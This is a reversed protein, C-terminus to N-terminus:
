ANVAEKFVQKSTSMGVHKCTLMILERFQAAAAGDPEYETIGQGARLAHELTKRDEIRLPAIPIGFKEEFDKKLVKEADDPAAKSGPHVCNLLFMAPKRSLEILSATTKMPKLDFFGVRCPILTLDAAKAAELSDAEAQPPTDIICLDAGHKGAISLKEEIQTAFTPIILPSEILGKDPWVKLRHDYWAKSSGQKDLDLVVVKLRRSVAAVALHISVTSKGQGGKLCVVSITKMIVHEGASMIVHSCTYICGSRNPANDLGYRHGDFRSKGYFTNLLTRFLKDV